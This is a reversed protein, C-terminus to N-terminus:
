SYTQYKQHYKNSNFFSNLFIVCQSAHGNLNNYTGIDKQQNHYM